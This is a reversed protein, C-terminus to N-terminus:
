KSLAQKQQQQKQQAAREALMKKRVELQQEPTLVKYVQAREMRRYGDLMAGKQESSLKEDKAVTDMRPKMNKQIEDIKAKQEATFKLGAFDDPPPTVKRPRVVPSATHPAQVPSPPTSQAGSLGPAVYLFVFGAAAAVRKAFRNVNMRTVKKLSAQNNMPGCLEGGTICRAM